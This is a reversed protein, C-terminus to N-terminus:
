SHYEGFDALPKLPIVDDVIDLKSKQLNGHRDRDQALAALAALAEHKEM